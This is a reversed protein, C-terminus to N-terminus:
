KKKKKQSVLKCTVGDDSAFEENPKLKSLFGSDGKTWWQLGEGIYRSGSGSIAINLLYLNNKYFLIARSDEATSGTYAVKFQRGDDCKMNYTELALSSKFCILALIAFTIKKM